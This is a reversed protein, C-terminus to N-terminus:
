ARPASCAARRAPKRCDGRGLGSDGGGLGGHRGAQGDAHGTPVKEGLALGVQAALVDNIQQGSPGADAAASRKTEVKSLEFQLAKVIHEKEPPTMSNWFLKAQGYHDGFSDSRQRVKPGSVQEPYSVFGGRAPTAEDPSHGDLSAPTYSVRGKNITHRMHADRQNNSVEALPRNIPLETFNPSGLRQFSPTWIPSTAAKCCRTTASIM